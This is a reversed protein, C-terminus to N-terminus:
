LLASISSLLLWGVRHRSTRYCLALLLHRINKESWCIGFRLRVFMSCPVIWQCLNLFGLLFRSIKCLLSSKSRSPWRNNKLSNTKVDVQLTKCLKTLLLNKPCKNKRKEFVRKKTTGRGKGQGDLWNLLQTRHVFQRVWEGGEFVRKNLPVGGRGNDMWCNLSCTPEKWWNICDSRDTQRESLNM